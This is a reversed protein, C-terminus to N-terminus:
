VVALPSGLRAAVIEDSEKDFLNCLGKGSSELCDSSNKGLKLNEKKQVEEILNVLV